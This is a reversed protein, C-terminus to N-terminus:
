YVVADTVASQEMTLVLRHPLCVITLASPLKGMKQCYLDPCDAYSIWAKGNQITIENTGHPTQVVFSTNTALPETRVCVGGVYVCVTNAKGNPLLLLMAISCVVVFAIIFFDARKM